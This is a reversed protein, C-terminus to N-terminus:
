TIIVRMNAFFAGMVPGSKQTLFFNPIIKRVSLSQAISPFFACVEAAKSKVLLPDEVRRVANALKRDQSKVIRSRDVQAGNPTSQIYSTARDGKKGTSM